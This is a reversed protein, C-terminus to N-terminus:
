CKEERLAQRFTIALIGRSFCQRGEGSYRDQRGSMVVFAESYCFRVVLLHFRFMSVVFVSYTVSSAPRGAFFIDSCFIQYSIGLDNWGFSCWCSFIRFGM